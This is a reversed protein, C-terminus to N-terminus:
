PRERLAGDGLEYAAGLARPEDLALLRLPVRPDRVQPQGFLALPAQHEGEGLELGLPRLQALREGVEVAADGPV